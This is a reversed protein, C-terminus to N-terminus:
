FLSLQQPADPDEDPIETPPVEAMAEVEAAEDQIEEIIAKASIEAEPEIVTEEIVAEITAPESPSPAESVGPNVAIVRPEETQALVDLDPVFDAGADDIHMTARVRLQALESDNFGAQHMVHTLSPETVKDRSRIVYMYHAELCERWEAEFINEPM